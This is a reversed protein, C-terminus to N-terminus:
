MIIPEFELRLVRVWCGQARAIRYLEQIDGYEARFSETLIIGAISRDELLHELQEPLGLVEIGHIQRGIKYPDSDLYGVPQYAYMPNMQIWRAAIEGDDGAGCILIREGSQRGQHISLHDLLKFSSRTASVGLVLFVAFVLFIGWPIEQFNFSIGTVIATLIGAGSAALAYRILDNLGVYRWVSRYVGFIFFSLYTAALAYPITSLFFALLREGASLSFVMLVSLYYLIGILFFDLLVEILRRKFTLEFVIRALGHRAQTEIPGSVVKLGGLYGTVIALTLILLPVIVLSLLYNVSEIGLATAGVLVAVGYMVLLARKESLGFAILRHSTHDRGGQVPSQGRIIRTVTVLVTDLIPLLFLLTPVGLVALVSSAQPQRVIAMLALTFGLFLSGSDGMFITAPPFNFFLFGLVAGCLALAVVLWSLNGSDWFIVGLFVGTILAIGAALGDMNDLLNIANTIGVLWLYTLLINLLQALEPNALRPTFFDTRVGASIALTAAIIQGILKAPPSMRFLDDFLGVAFILGAGWLYEWQISAAGDSGSQIVLIGLLWALFIGVGGLLATPQRHWRDPRPRAVRGSRQSVARMLPVLVLSSGFAALGALWPM